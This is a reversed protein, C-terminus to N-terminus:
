SRQSSVLRDFEPENRLSLLDADHQARLRLTPQITIAHQLSDLASDISGLRARTAALGYHIHAGEPERKLAREFMEQAAVFEGRNLEIVGRDYLSDADKPLSTDTRLRSETITLYTRARAVVDSAGVHKEVLARFLARAEVFRGGAFEKYARQFAQLAASEDLTPPRRVQPAQHSTVAKRAPLIKKSAPAKALVAPKAIVTPKAIKKAPTPKRKTTAVPAKRSVAKTKGKATQKAPAKKKAATSKASSRIPKTKTSSSSVAKAAKRAPAKKTSDRKVIASPRASKGAINRQKSSSTSRRAGPRAPSRKVGKITADSM